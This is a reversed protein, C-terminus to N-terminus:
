DMIDKLEQCEENTIRGKVLFVDLKQQMEERVYDGSSIIKKCLLYTNM